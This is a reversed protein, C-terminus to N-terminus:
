DVICAYPIKHMSRLTGPSNAKVENLSVECTMVVLQKPVSFM